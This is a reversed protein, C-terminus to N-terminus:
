HSGHDNMEAKVEGVRCLAQLGCWRCSLATDLPNVRADGDIFQQALNGLTNQWSERLAEWDAVPIDQRASAKLIDSSIGAAQNERALGKWCSEDANVQAFSVGGVRAGLAESYLPLQPERPRPGLWDRSDTSGTKYDVILLEGNPLLDIRDVRLKLQLIGLQLECGAERAQVAFASCQAEIDLWAKLLRQLHIQELGLYTKGILDPHKSIFNSITSVVAGEVLAQKQTQDMAQLADSNGLKGWLDYLADHILNGRDAATLGVALEGPDRAQLRNSAFARFGCHSQDQILGSGGRLGSAEDLELAPARGEVPLQEIPQGALQSWRVPLTVSHLMPLEAFGQLLPSPRQAVTDRSAAYSAVLQSSCHQYQDLLRQAYLQERRSDAHPMAHQQQLSFPIFPNPRAPTPWDNSSMGSLWLYQFQLGAAELLGLVQIPAAATQMQYVTDSCLQRVLRCAGRYDLKQCVGDLEALRELCQHWHELQQYEDSNLPGPGPWQLTTLCQSLLECWRSPLHKQRLERQSSLQLLQTGMELDRCFFRLQSASITARGHQYLKQLLGSEADREGQYRYRTHVLQLLGEVDVEADQLSLLALASRVTPTASLPLGGSFNVPPGCDDETETAFVEGLIREFRQRQSALDSLLIAISANPNESLTQRAWHAASVMEHERDQCPQLYRSAIEKRNHHRHLESVQAALAQEYLPPLEDIEALVATAFRCKEAVIAVQTPLLTLKLERCLKEFHAAWEVFLAADASLRFETALPENRHDLQWLLLNRYADRALRAAARPRLLASSAPNESVCRQWLELEQAETALQLSEEGWPDALTRCHLWWHEISMVLPTEWTQIGAQQQRQAWALKIHRALRYNPTIVPVGAQLWHALPQVDYFNLSNDPNV